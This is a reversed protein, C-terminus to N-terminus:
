MVNCVYLFGYICIIVEQCNEVGKSMSAESIQVNKLSMRWSDLGIRADNCWQLSIYPRSLEPQSTIDIYGIECNWTRRFRGAQCWRCWRCGRCRTDQHSHECFRLHHGGGRNREECRDLLVSEQWPMGPSPVFYPCFGMINLVPHLVLYPWINKCVMLNQVKLCPSVQILM